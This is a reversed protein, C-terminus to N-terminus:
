TYSVARRLLSKSQSMADAAGLVHIGLRGAVLGLELLNRPRPLDDRDIGCHLRPWDDLFYHATPAESGLREEKGAVVQGCRLPLAEM